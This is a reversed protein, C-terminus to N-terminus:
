AFAWCSGGMRCFGSFCTWSAQPTHPVQPASPVVAHPMPPEFSAPLHNQSPKRNGRRRRSKAKTAPATTTAPTAAALMGHALLTGWADAAAYSVFGPEALMDQGSELRWWGKKKFSQKKWTAEDPDGRSLFAALGPTPHLHAMDKLDAVPGLVEMGPSCNKLAQIDGKGQCFVKQISADALLKRLDPSYLGSQTRVEVVVVSSSAVQVMLPGKKGLEGHHGECDVGISQDISERLKGYIQTTSRRDMEPDVVLVEVGSLRMQEELQKERPAAFFKSPM